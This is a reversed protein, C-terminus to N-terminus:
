KEWSFHGAYCGAMYIVHNDITAFSHRPSTVANFISGAATSRLISLTSCVAFDRFCIFIETNTARFAM